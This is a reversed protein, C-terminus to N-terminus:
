LSLAHYLCYLCVSLRLRLFDRVCVRVRVCMYVLYGAMAGFCIGEKEKKKKKKKKKKKRGDM